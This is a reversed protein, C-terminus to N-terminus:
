WREHSLRQPSSMPEVLYSAFDRSAGMRLRVVEKCAEVHHMQRCACFRPIWADAHTAFDPHAPM